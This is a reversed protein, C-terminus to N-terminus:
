LGSILAFDGALASVQLGPDEVSHGCHKACLTGHLRATASCLTSVKGRVRPRGRVKEKSPNRLRAELVMAAMDLRCKAFGADFGQTYQTDAAYRADDKRASHFTSGAAAKGSACGDARSTLGSRLRARDAQETSACAALAAPPDNGDAPSTPARSWRVVDV